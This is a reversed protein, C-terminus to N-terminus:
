LPRRPGRSFPTVAAPWAAGRRRTAERADGAAPATNESPKRFEFGRTSPRDRQAKNAAPAPVPARATIDEIAIFEASCHSRAVLDADIGYAGAWRLDGVVTGGGVSDRGAAAARSCQHEFEM